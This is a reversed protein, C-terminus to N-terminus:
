AALKARQRYARQRDAASAHKRTRGLRRRPIQPTEIDEKSDVVYKTVGSESLGKSDVLGLIPPAVPCGEVKADDQSNRLAEDGISRVGRDFAIKAQLASLLITRSAATMVPIGDSDTAYSSVRLGATRIQIEGRVPATSSFLEFDTM